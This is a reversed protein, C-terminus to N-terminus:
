AREDPGSRRQLLRAFVEFWRDDVHHIRDPPEDEDPPAELRPATVDALLGSVVVELTSLKFPKELYASRGLAATRNAFEPTGFGTMVIVALSPDRQRASEAISLGDPGEGLVVDVILLDFKESELASCANNSSEATCVAFGDNELQKSIYSRYLQEDDVILVSGTRTM